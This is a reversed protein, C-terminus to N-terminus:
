FISLNIHIYSRTSVLRWYFGLAVLEVFEIPKTTEKIVSARRKIDVFKLLRPFEFLIMTNYHDKVFTSYRIFGDFYRFEFSFVWIFYLFSTGNFIPSFMQKTHKFVPSLVIVITVSYCKLINISQM